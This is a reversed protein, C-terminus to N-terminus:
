CFTDVEQPKCLWKGCESRELGKIFAAKCQKFDAAQRKCDRYTSAPKGEQVQNAESRVNSTVKQLDRFYTYFSKKCLRSIEGTEVAKGLCFSEHCELLVVRVNFNLM